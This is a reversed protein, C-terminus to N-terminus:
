RSNIKNQSNRFERLRLVVNKLISRFRSIDEHTTEWGLSIRLSSQAEGRTLGMALLTPSPEPNGSSCAAGTSVSVGELDLNMLLSEGDVNDIVLSSTNPLRDVGAGTLRVGDLDSFIGAELEDRLVRMNKLNDKLEPSQNFLDAVFGFASIALINETGARRGREQGGGSILSKLKEGKRVYVLGAGRLAYIKHSAFTAYDVGWEHLNVPIKGATQVADTHFKAGAKQALAAMERIPFLSGTENNAAMISVLAVRESLVKAYAERDIHGERNVPLWHVVAGENELARFCEKVSPHEVKSTIFEKRTAGAIPMFSKIVLNNSESGGSTFILELPHAGLMTALNQRADRLLNKPARGSHHISSPNGWNKLWTPVQEAVLQLPPTTANYDLYIRGTDKLSLSPNNKM